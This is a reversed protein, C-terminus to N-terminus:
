APLLAQAIQTIDIIRQIQSQKAGDDVNPWRAVAVALTRIEDRLQTLEARRSAHAPDALLADLDRETDRCAQTMMGYAGSRRKTPTEEEADMCALRRPRPDTPRDSRPPM